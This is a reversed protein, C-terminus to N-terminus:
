KGEESPNKNFKGLDEDCKSYAERLDKITGSTIENLVLGLDGIKELINEAEKRYEDAGEGVWSGLLTQNIENFAIKINEFEKILEPSKDIFAGIKTTDLSRFKTGDVVFEDAM